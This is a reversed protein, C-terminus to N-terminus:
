PKGPVCSSCAFEYTPAGDDTLPTMYQGCNGCKPVEVRPQAGAQAEGEDLAGALESEADSRAGRIDDRLKTLEAQAFEKAENFMKQIPPPIEGHEIKLFGTEAKQILSDVRALRSEIATDLKDLVSVSKRNMRIGLLLTVISTLGLPIFFGVGATTSLVQFVATSVEVVKKSDYGRLFLTGVIGGFIVFVAGATIICSMFIRVILKKHEAESPISYQEEVAPMAQTGDLLPPGNVEAIRKSKMYDSLNGM